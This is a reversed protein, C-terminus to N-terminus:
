EKPQTNWLIYFKDENRVKLTASESTIFVQVVIDSSLKSAERATAMVYEEHIKKPIGPYQNVLKIVLSNVFKLTDEKVQKVIAYYSYRFTGIGIFKNISDEIPFSPIVAELEVAHEIGKPLVEPIKVFLYNM